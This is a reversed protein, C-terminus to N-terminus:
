TMQDFSITTETINGASEIELDINPAWLMPFAVVTTWRDPAKAESQPESVTGTQAGATATLLVANIVTPQLLRIIKICVSGEYGDRM